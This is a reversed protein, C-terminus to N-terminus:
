PWAAFTLLLLGKGKAETIAGVQLLCASHAIGHIRHALHTREYCVAVENHKNMYLYYGRIYM